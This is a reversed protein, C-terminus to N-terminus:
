DGWWVVPDAALDFGLLRWEVDVIGHDPYLMVCNLRATFRGQTVITGESFRLRLGGDTEPLLVPFPRDKRLRLTRGPGLQIPEGNLAADIQQGLSALAPWCAGLRSLTPGFTAAGPKISLTIGSERYEIGSGLITLHDSLQFLAAIAPKAGPITVREPETRRLLSQTETMAPPAARSQFEIAANLIRDLM